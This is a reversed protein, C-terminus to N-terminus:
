ESNLRHKKLEDIDVFEINGDSNKFTTLNIKEIKNNNIYVDFPIVRSGM